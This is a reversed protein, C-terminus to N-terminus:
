VDEKGLRQRHCDSHSELAVKLAFQTVLMMPHQATSADSLGIAHCNRLTSM